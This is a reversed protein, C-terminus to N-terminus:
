TPQWSWCSLASLPQGFLLALMPLGLFGANGIVACQAEVATTQIDLGRLYGVASALCYVIATGSLYALVLRGDWIQALELNAAFRFIMASLAFYFCSSPSTPQQKKRLSDRGDPGTAWARDTCLLTPNEPLIALM